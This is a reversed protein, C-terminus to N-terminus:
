RLQAELDDLTRAGPPRGARAAANAERQLLANVPTPVGHLRGLILRGAHGPVTTPPFGPLAEFSFERDAEVDGDVAARLGSGIVVAVRPQVASRERILAAGEAAFSDAPGPRAAPGAISAGSM